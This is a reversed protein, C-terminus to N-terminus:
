AASDRQPFSSGTQLGGRGGSRIGFAVALLAFCSFTLSALRLASVGARIEVRHMGAPVDLALYGLPSRQLEVPTGDVAVRLTPYWAYPLVITAAGAATLDFAVTTQTERYPSVTVEPAEQPLSALVADVASTDMAYARYLANIAAVDRIPEFPPIEPLGDPYVRLGGRTDPLFLIAFTGHDERRIAEGLAIGELAAAEVIVADADMWRFGELTEPSFSRRERFIERGARNAIAAQPYYLPTSDEPYGGFPTRLGAMPTAAPWLADASDRLDIVRGRHGALAEYAAQRAGFPEPLYARVLTTRGLDAILLGTLLIVTWAGRPDWRSLGAAGYGAMVALFFCLFLLQRWSPMAHVLPILRHGPVSQGWIVFVIFLLLLAYPSFSKRLALAAFGALALAAFSLGFYAGHGFGRWERSWRVLDSVPLVGAGPERNESAGAKVHGAISNTDRAERAFPLLFGTCLAGMVLGTALGVKLLPWLVPGRLAPKACFRALLANLIAWLVVLLVTFFTYALHTYLMAACVLGLALGTRLPREGGDIFRQLIWFPLPLLACFIAMQFQGLYVTSAARWFCLAYALGSIFAAGPNGLLRRVLLFMTGASAIHAMWLVIKVGRNADGALVGALGTLYYTVPSDFLLFPFGGYWSFSWMPWEGARVAEVFLFAKTTRLVGDGRFVYGPALYYVTLLATLGLLAAPLRRPRALLDGVARSVARARIELILWFLGHLLLVAGLAWRVARGGPAFQVGLYCVAATALTGYLGRAVAAGREM